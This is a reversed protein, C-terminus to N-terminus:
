PQNEQYPRPEWANIRNRILQANANIHHQAALCWRHLDDVPEFWDPREATV